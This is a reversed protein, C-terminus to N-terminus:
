GASILLWRHIATTVPLRRSRIKTSNSEVSPSVAIARMRTKHKELANKHLHTCLHQTLLLSDPQQHLHEVAGVNDSFTHVSTSLSCFLTLNSICTNWQASMTVSRTYLPALHASSLWTASTPTGPRRCQWQVHTCLHQTLLLSDLQQHLHEMAGVNDSFTHVSTSHSCFLTLNSICTNWPASMTVSGTHLPESHASSLWAASAPTGCRRCQGRHTRQLLWTERKTANQRWVWLCPLTERQRPRKTLKMQPRYDYQAPCVLSGTNENENLHSPPVITAMLLVDSKRDLPRSNSGRGACPQMVATPLNNAGMCGQYRSLWSTFLCVGCHVLGMSM